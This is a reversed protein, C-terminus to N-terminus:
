EPPAAGLSQTRNKKLTLLAHESNTNKQKPKQKNKKNKTYSLGLRRPQLAFSQSFPKSSEFPSPYSLRLSNFILPYLM